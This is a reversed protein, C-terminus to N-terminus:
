VVSDLVVMQGKQNCRNEVFHKEYVVMEDSIMGRYQVLELQRM